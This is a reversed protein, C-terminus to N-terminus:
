LLRFVTRYQWRALGSNVCKTSYGENFMDVL